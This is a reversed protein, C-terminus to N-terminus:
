KLRELIEYRADRLDFAPKTGELVDVILRTIEPHEIAGTTYVIRNGDTKDMRSHIIQDADCVVALNPNHTVMIIQRRNKAFRVAPVLMTAVTQNDLNEEPQDIVLPMNRKDILLYFVLLLNGREGPSLKDISKEQWRLEFRPKLYSLSYMFNYVNEPSINKRLQERLRVPVNNDKDRKDSKLYDHITKLFDLVGTETSFDSHALLENLLDRGEQDGQFSGKRGQHIMNVLGDIFGDVTISASFQLANQQQAVPHTDIFNQVPFYLNKYDDLLQKKASFIEGVIGSRKEEREKIKQPVMQLSSLKEEAGKVSSPKPNDPFGEIEERNKQWNALQRLYEQYRRNPEDLNARVQDLSASLEGRRMILSGPVDPALSKQAELILQSVKTKLDLIPQRNVTFTVLQDMKLGLVSEDDSSELYFNKVQRELNKLKGISREAAAIQLEGSQLKKQVADIEGDLDQVQRVLKELNQKITETAQQEQPDQNPERVESPKSEDHAKLEARCQELQSELTKRYEETLQDELAVIDANMSALESILQNIHEEKDRALYDILDRLTEKRLRKADSVHSFIVEMLESDFQTEHSEKLESCISELFNQPIYKILEPLTGDVADNLLRSSELDAHWRIKAQFMGGFMTKPSLFRDKRLFSFHGTGRTNGLLALIDALASKGSGKNGIIAVLGSNLPIVGSFWIESEKSKQTRSFAVFDIFKTANETIYSLMPPEKGIYIRTDPEHQIQQLGHFTPDAKIWLYRNEAPEFLSEYTHADSGHICPKLTKFEKIFEQQSRHKNGLGFDRTKPNGSFLMHSKQIFLKRTLHGQGDWSCESLDEDAPVVMLFRGNFRSSQRELVETIDEHSVVANMMGVFLDTNDKFKKHDRKLRRGLEELNSNTLTWREDSSNPNSEATFRLDRLFNEEILNPDIEDTFIVHFNVRSDAGNPRPIIVSTRFEINPLILIDRAKFAVEKGVLCELKANDSILAKLCKYGEISFYDTVGIAAINKEVARTLLIRAYDDFHNGFGNNLASHPTHVHLDWKRWESGRLYKSNSM